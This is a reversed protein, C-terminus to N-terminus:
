PSPRSTSEKSIKNTKEAEIQVERIITNHFKKLSIGLGITLHLKGILAKGM